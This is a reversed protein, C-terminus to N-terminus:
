RHINAKRIENKDGQSIIDCFLFELYISKSNELIIENRGNILLEFLYKDELVICEFDNYQKKLM